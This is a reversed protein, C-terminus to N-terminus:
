YALMLAIIKPKISMELSENVLHTQGLPRVIARGVIRLSFALSDLPIRKNIQWKGTLLGQNFGVSGLHIYPLRATTSGSLFNVERSNFVLVQSKKLRESRSGRAFCTEQIQM